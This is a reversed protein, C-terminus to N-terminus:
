QVPSQRWRTAVYCLLGASVEVVSAALDSREFARGRLYQFSSIAEKVPLVRDQKLHLCHMFSVRDDM